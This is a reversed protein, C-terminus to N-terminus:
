VKTEIVKDDITARLETVVSTKEIPFTYTCELPSDTIPNVYSLEVSTVAYAGTLEAKIDVNTLPM